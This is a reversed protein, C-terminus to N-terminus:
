APRSSTSTKPCAPATTASRSRRRRRRRRRAHRHRDRRRGARARRARQRAPQRRDHGAPDAPLRRVAACRAHRAARRRARPRDGDQGAAARRARAGRDGGGPARAPGPRHGGRQRGAPDGGRHPRAGGPRRDRAPPQRGRPDPGQARRRAGPGRRARARADRGRDPRALTVVTGVRRGDREVARSSALLVRDGAILPADDKLEQPRLTELEDGLLRKAHDNVLAPRGQEDFVVVGERLAHLTADHHAYLTTIEQPELGLTQRKLRRALLLSLLGGIALIVAALGILGPLLAAVEEGIADTLVGVAVLAVVTGGDDTAPVVARVSRGLTGETTETVTRGQAAPAFTGVFPKGILDANPHSYRIGDPRMITIFDVHAVERVREALPQLTASPDTARTARAVDPLAAVTRAVTLSRDRAAHETRERAVLVTILAGAVVTVAVVTLQLVLLRGALSRVRMASINERSWLSAQSWYSWLWSLAKPRGYRRGGRPVGNAPPSLRSSLGEMFRCSHNQTRTAIAAPITNPRTAGPGAVSDLHSASANRCSMLVTVAGTIKTVTTIPMAESPSM